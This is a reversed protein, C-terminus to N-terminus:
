KEFFRATVENSLSGSCAAFGVWVQEKFSIEYGQFRGFSAWQSGTYSYAPAFHNTQDDLKFIIPKGRMTNPIDVENSFFRGRDNRLDVHIRDSSAGLFLFPSDQKESQRVMIGCRNLPTGSDIKLLVASFPSGANTKGVFLLSDGNTRFGEARASLEFQGHLNTSDLYKAHVNTTGIAMRRWGAPLNTENSLFSDLMVKQDRTPELNTTANQVTNASHNDTSTAPTRSLLSSSQATSSENNTMAVQPPAMPKAVLGM